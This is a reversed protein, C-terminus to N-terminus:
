LSEFEGLSKPFQQRLRKNFELSFYGTTQIYLTYRPSCATRSCLCHKNCNNELYLYVKKSGSKSRIWSVIDWEITNDPQIVFSFFQILKSHLHVQLINANRKLNWAGKKCISFARCGTEFWRYLWDVWEDQEYERELTEGAKQIKFNDSAWLQLRQPLKGATWLQKLGM